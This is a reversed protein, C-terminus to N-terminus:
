NETRRREKKDQKNSLTLLMTQHQKPGRKNMSTGAVRQRLTSSQVEAQNQNSVVAM